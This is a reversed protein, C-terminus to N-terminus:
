KPGSRNGLLQLARQVQETSAAFSIRVYRSGDRTDFDIGPSLAVGTEELLEMCYRRSDQTLNGVEAYFYFAGEPVTLDRFGLSPLRVKLMERNTAYVQVAAKLEVQSDFAALAAHQSLAPPTLLLNTLYAQVHRICSEPVVIWGLRWGPMRFFKSFSNIVFASPAIELATAVEHGYSIGHYIEDSILHLAHTSCIEAIQQLDVRSAIAGTPNGPSAVIVGRAGASHAEIQQPAFRYGTERTCDIEIPVRGLANLANRYAPYGPRSLLIKDGVSFISSFLAILGASAGTTLLIREPQVRVSYTDLYHQAIRCRLSESEWYGLNGGSEQLARAAAKVVAAPPGLAPQGFHLPVVERGLRALRTAEKAIEGAYFPPIPFGRIVSSRSVRVERNSCGHVAM